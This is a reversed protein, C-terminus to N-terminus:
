DRYGSQDYAVILDLNFIWSMRNADDRGMEMIHSRSLCSVLEPYEAPGSPIGLVADRVGIAVAYGEQYDGNSSGSRIQVQVAPFDIAISPFSPKGGSNRFVVQKDPTQTYGGVRTQWESNPFPSADDVIAKLSSAPDAATNSNTPM